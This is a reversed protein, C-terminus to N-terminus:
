SGQGQVQSGAGPAPRQSQGQGKGKLSRKVDNAMAQHDSDAIYLGAGEAMRHTSWMTFARAWTMDAADVTMSNRGIALITAIRIANEATRALFPELSNDADGMAQIELVLEKRVQEAEPTIDLKRHDPM